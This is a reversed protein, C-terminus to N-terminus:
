RIEGLADWIVDPELYSLVASTALIFAGLAYVSPGAIVMAMKSLKVYTVLIGLLFVEMMSWSQFEQVLRFIRATWANGRRAKVQMLVYILGSLYVLPALEVTTILIAGLWPWGLTVLFHISGPLTVAEESGHMYLSMVPFFNTLAFLILATIAFALPIDLSSQQNRKLVAGCRGCLATGGKPLPGIRHLLDCEPCATLVSDM